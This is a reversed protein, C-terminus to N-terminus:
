AKRKRMRLAGRAAVASFGLAMAIAGAIMITEIGVATAAIYDEKVIAEMTCYLGYGPVLPIIGMTAFVITPSKLLRAALESALGIFVAAVFSAVTASGDCLVILDYIVYGIGGIVAGPLLSKKQSRFMMGFGATALGAALLDFIIKGFTM